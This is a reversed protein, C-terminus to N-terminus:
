ILVMVVMVLGSPVTLCVVQSFFFSQPLAVQMLEPEYRGSARYCALQAAIWKCKKKTSAKANWDTCDLM